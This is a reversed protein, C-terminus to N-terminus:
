KILNKGTMEKPVNIKLYKLITPAVDCLSGNKLLITKDSCIFMVPNTTHKTTPKNNEDETLEANGHDATIFWVVNDNNQIYELIRKFQSDLFEIAKITAKLNGTHGVMDPNAYNMIVFDVDKIYKLLEDTIEKASMQPYDAFSKAKISNVLIRKENNYEIDIGGDMFFTVHAYKQTEALRLQKIKNNELVKGLPNEIKMEEFAILSKIGEYKMLSCFLNIKIKNKPKYEYLNSNLILHSLQRARDPRFNFFLVNDNEKLFLGNEYQAPIFFEDYIKENYQNDVYENIDKFINKSKGLIAEFALENREFVQDRDMAYYRGSISSITYEFKKTLKELENLSKKISQPKVDRGDGFIHISVKKLGRFNALKIIEFLHKDYSHVGGDSLLGLLHLTKEKEIADEIILNLAKNKQFTNNKIEQNILSLGTYVIRGAGINLHGVESNGIQNDPLGVFKGSAELISNPYENLLIDFTPHNSLAFANGQTEKRIGLGDIITLIIKKKM